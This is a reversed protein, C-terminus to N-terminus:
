SAALPLVHTRVVDVVHAQEADTMSPFLPLTITAEGWAHSTPHDAPTFSYRERYWRLTPVSRYNVTAGVGHGGLTALATDRVPGPVGICFLHRAHLARADGAVLRLATGRFAAEYRRALVERRPLRADISDIQPPLLAALLDPLNAKVGLRTMDWHRYLGGKFRDAAGASMGHLRTESLKTHLAADRCVIAGGEGCTVNKTAYFSFIAMTSRTGPREGDRKAEFAHAADEVIAVDPRKRLVDAIGRMYCMLGYLHVPIVAKTRPSLAREVSAPTMLLTAPDVDVFVPKAGVHEVVNSTAIFTMAPVIVEDGPGIELALLAAVAGNTWSSVLAAHPLGFYAALQAEVRRGVDGSTLIPSALVAAVREADAPGLDHRYFPVKM